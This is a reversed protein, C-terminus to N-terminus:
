WQKTPTGDGYDGPRKPQFIMDTALFLLRTYPYIVLPLAVMLGAALWQLLDWNPTPWEWIFLAAWLVAAVTEAIGLNVLYGGVFHDPEGRDPRLGCAPCRPALKLWGHIVGPGGCGPCRLRLARALRTRPAVTDSPRAQDM